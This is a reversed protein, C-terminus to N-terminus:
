AQFLEKKLLSWSHFTTNVLAPKMITCAVTPMRAKGTTSNRIMSLRLARQQNQFELTKDASRFILNPKRQNRKRNCISFQFSLSLILNKRQLRFYFHFSFVFILKSLYLKQENFGSFGKREGSTRDTARQPSSVGEIKISHKNKTAHAYLISSNKKSLIKMKNKSGDM